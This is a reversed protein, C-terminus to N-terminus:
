LKQGPLWLGIEGNRTGLPNLGVNRQSDTVACYGGPWLDPM